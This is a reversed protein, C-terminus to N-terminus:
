SPTYNDPIQARLHDPSLSITEQLTLALYPRQKPTHVISQNTLIYIFTVNGTSGQHDLALVANGICPAQTWDRTLSSPDAYQLQLDQMSCSLGLVALIFLYM